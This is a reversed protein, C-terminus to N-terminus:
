GAERPAGELAPQMDSVGGFEELYQAAATCEFSSIMHSLSILHLKELLSINGKRREDSVKKTVWEDLWNARRFRKDKYYNKLM